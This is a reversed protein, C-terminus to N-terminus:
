KRAQKIRSRIFEITIPKRRALRRKLVHIERTIL